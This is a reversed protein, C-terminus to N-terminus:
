EKDISVTKPLSKKWQFIKLEIIDLYDFVIGEKELLRRQRIADESMSPFSVKGKSSIVRYWPLDNTASSSHLIWVVGRVVQPKGALKAIQAYTAVKGKPIKKIYYIVKRSFESPGKGM